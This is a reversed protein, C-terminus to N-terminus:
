ECPRANKTQFSYTRWSEALKQRDELSHSHQAQVSALPEGGLLLCLMQDSRFVVAVELFYLQPGDVQKVVSFIDPAVEAFHYFM